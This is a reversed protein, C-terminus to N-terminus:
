YRYIDLKVGAFVAIGHASASVLGWRAQSLFSQEMKGTATDYIDVGQYADSNSVGGAFLAKTGAGIATLGQRRFNLISLLSPM